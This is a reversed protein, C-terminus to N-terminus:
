DSSRVMRGLILIVNKLATVFKGMLGKKKIRDILVAILIVLGLVVKQTYSEVNTLNMGNRIVAIIFAGVLTGTIKGEGGFLSTGGVVVAAIVFLEYMLGYTPLGSNLQSALVVGGLGALAGCITYVFLLIFIVPVGSLRAAERNGGVAYIYRGLTTRTMVIHTIVYLVLMLVVSNPVSLDKPGMGFRVTDWVSEVIDKQHSLWKFSEPIKYISQGEAIIFALGSAIMMMGLTAIFPPCDFTTILAGSFLGILGCAAIAILCAIIMSMTSAEQAGFKEQIFWCSVVASFAILSGVSLDIGGTIIVLTMGIALIAIVAIQGAINVLNARMLFTPWNYSEARVINKRDFGEMFDFVTWQSVDQTAAIAQVTKGEAKLRDWAQRADPPAGVVIEVVTHGYEQLAQSAAQAFENQEPPEPKIIILVNSGPSYRDQILDAVQIGASAGTPQQEEYTLYSFLACLLLLGILIGNESLLKWPSFSKSSGKSSM